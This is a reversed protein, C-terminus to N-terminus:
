EGGSACLALEGFAFRLPEVRKATGSPFFGCTKLLAAPGWSSSSFAWAPQGLGRDSLGDRARAIAGHTARRVGSAVMAM